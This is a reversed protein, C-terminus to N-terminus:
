NGSLLANVLMTVDATDIKGDGTLDATGLNATANGLIMNILDTLDTVNVVGDGNVDGLLSPTGKGTYYITFDDVYLSKTKSGATQNVRFRVNQSGTISLPWYIIQDTSAGVTVSQLGAVNSLVTWTSGGDTSMSLTFKADATTVNFVRVSARYATYNVDASMTIAAPNTMAVAKDGRVNGPASIRCRAFNWTTIDGQVGKLSTSTTTDMAEFGEVDRVIDTDVKITIKGDTGETIDTIMLSNDRGDWTKLTPNTFNGIMPVGSAGPYSDTDADDSPTDVARLLVYYNHEPKTNITNQTWRWSDTSDVRVALMGHGPLAADWSTLQRNELLIYQYSDPTNIRLAQHDTVLAGLEYTGPGTIITPTIFGLAYKDYASFGAPTRGYNNYGGGSMIEWQGPDHSQGNSAYDTDYLDMLGLVHTFEHCMTGIGDLINSSQSYLECSCAYRGFQVGDLLFKSDYIRSAHPWVHQDAEGTNSGVGAFIVYFMDVTGDGDTDYKSYDAKNDLLSLASKIVTAVNTNKQPYDISYPVTVPGVVDFTPKFNGNSNQNFYDRMSGTFTGYYNTSGDENTYGTYGDQNIMKNYFDNVDSREFSVDNWQVLVVLGEFKNYDFKTAKSGMEQVRSSHAKRAQAVEVTAVVGKGVTALFDEDAATRQAQDRAVMGSSVLTGDQLQAYNWYGQADQVLTYGDLTTYYSYFEDGHLRVSLTSGNPQTKVMAWPAAPIAWLQVASLLFLTLVFIAKKKM